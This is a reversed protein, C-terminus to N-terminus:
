GEMWGEEVAIRRAARVAAERAGKLTRSKGGKFHTAGSAMWEYKRALNSYYVVLSVGFRNRRWIVAGYEAHPMWKDLEM